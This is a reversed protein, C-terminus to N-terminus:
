SEFEETAPKWAGKPRPGFIDTGVRVLTSGELIAPELDHSMGMSLEDLSWGTEARMRDRLERLRAFDPRALSADEYFPPMGMLGAIEVRHLAQAGELLAPLAAPTVGFKSAEGAINVEILVRIKRGAEEAHRNLALLLAASDVSHIMSFLEVAVRAKNSQLHGVLHWELSGSCQEMKMAAEQVRNEGFLRQGCRAAEEVAAPPHNKSIAVLEVSDDARGARACAARIRARVAELRESLTSTPEM